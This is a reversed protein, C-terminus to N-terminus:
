AEKPATQGDLRVTVFKFIGDAIRINRELEGVLEGPATYEFRVYSGRTQKRVPYALTRVGLDDVAAIKGGNKDVIQSLNEIIQKRNEEALEPSLLVLTEYTNAM